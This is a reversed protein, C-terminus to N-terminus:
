MRMCKYNISVWKILCTQFPILFCLPHPPAPTPSTRPPATKASPQLPTPSSHPPTPSTNFWNHKHQLQPQQVAVGDHRGHAAGGMAGGRVTGSWRGSSRCREFHKVDATGMVVGLVSLLCASGYWVGRSCEMYTPCRTGGGVCVCVNVFM